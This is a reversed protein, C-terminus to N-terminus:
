AIRLRAMRHGYWVITVMAIPLCSSVAEQVLLDLWGLHLVENGDEVGCTVGDVLSMGLTHVDVALPVDHGLDVLSAHVASLHTM